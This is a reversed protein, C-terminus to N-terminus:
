GDQTDALTASISRAAPSSPWTSASGAPASSLASSATEDPCRRRIAKGQILRTSAKRQLLLPDPLVTVCGPTDHGLSVPPAGASGGSRRGAPSVRDPWVCDSPPIAETLGNQSNSGNCAGDKCNQSQNQREHRLMGLLVDATENRDLRERLHGETLVRSSGRTEFQYGGAVVSVM